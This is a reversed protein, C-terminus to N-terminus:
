VNQNEVITPANGWIALISDQVNQPLEALELRGSISNIYAKRHNEGVQVLNGSDNIFRQKLISVSNETLMDITIKEQIM